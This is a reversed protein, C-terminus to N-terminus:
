LGHVVPYAADSFVDAIIEWLTGDSNCGEMDAFVVGRINKLKGANRLHTLMRDIRYPKENIDELFLLHGDTHIEYPTGLSCCLLVLNGGVLCGSTNGP